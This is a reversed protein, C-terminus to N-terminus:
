AWESKLLKVCKRKKNGSDDRDKQRNMNFVPALRFALSLFALLLTLGTSERFLVKAELRRKLAHLIKIVCRDARSHLSCRRHPLDCLVLLHAKPALLLAPPGEPTITRFPSYPHLAKNAQLSLYNPPTLTARKPCPVHQLSTFILLPLFGTLNIEDSCRHQCVPCIQPHSECSFVLIM